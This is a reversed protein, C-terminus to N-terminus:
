CVGPTPDTGHFLNFVERVRQVYPGLDRLGLALAALKELPVLGLGLLNAVRIPRPRTRIADLTALRDHLTPEVEAEVGTYVARLESFYFPFLICYLKLELM